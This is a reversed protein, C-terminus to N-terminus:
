CPVSVTVSDQHPYTKGVPDQSRPAAYRCVPAELIYNRACSFRESVPRKCSPGRGQHLREAASITYHLLVIIIIYAPLCQDKVKHPNHIAESDRYIQTFIDISVPLSRVM